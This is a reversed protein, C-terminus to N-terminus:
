SASPTNVLLDAFDDHIMVNYYDPEHKPFDFYPLDKFDVYILEKKGWSIFDEFTWNDAIFDLFEPHKDDCFTLRHTSGWKHLHPLMAARMALIGVGFDYGWLKDIGEAEYDAITRFGYDRILQCLNATQNWRHMYTEPLSNKIVHQNIYFFGSDNDKTILSFDLLEKQRIYDDLTLGNDTSIYVGEFNPPLPIIPEFAEETGWITNFAPIRLRQQLADLLQRGTTFQLNHNFIHTNDIGMKNHKINQLRGKSSKTHNILQSNM